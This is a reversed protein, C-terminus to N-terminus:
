QNKHAEEYKEKAKNYFELAEDTDMFKLVKTEKHQKRDAM